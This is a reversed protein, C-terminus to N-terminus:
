FNYLIEEEEDEYPIAGTQPKAQLSLKLQKIVNEFEERTVFTSQDAPLNSSQQPIEKLEYMNLSATGDMNVQKTYIKQNALDPFYFISGDFDISTARVEDLSSVPRGKLGPTQPAIYRQPVYSSQQTSQPYYNYSPQYM